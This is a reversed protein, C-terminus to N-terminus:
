KTKNQQQSCLFEPPRLRGSPGLAFVLDLGESWAAMQEFVQGLSDLMFAYAWFFSSSIAEDVVGVQVSHDDSKDGEGRQQMEADGRLFAEKSWGFVLLDKIKLLEGIAFWISGWRAEYVHARFSKIEAKRASQPAISFCTEILRDCSWRRSLLRCTQRLQNLFTPFFLLCDALDKTTNHLVHLMGAIYVSRRMNVLYPDAHAGRHHPAQADPPPANDGPGTSASAGGPVAPGEVPGMSDEFRFAPQSALTDRDPRAAADEFVFAAPSQSALGEFGSGSPADDFEMKVNVSQGPAPPDGGNSDDAHRREADADADADVVWQGFLKRLSQRFLWFGSEVGLDGTWSMTSSLMDAVGRWSSCSLRVAHAVAHVKRRLSQRGSGVATPVGQSLHLLDSLRQAIIRREGEPVGPRCLRNADRMAPVLDAKAVTRSGHMVFDFPGQPSSDVTCFRVCGRQLFNDYLQQEYMCYAMHVTLRHRRLTTASPLMRPAEMQQLIHGRLSPDHVAAFVVFRLAEAMQGMARLFGAFVVCSILCELAFARTRRTTQLMLIDRRRQIWCLHQRVEESPVRAYSRRLVNALQDLSDPSLGDISDTSRLLAQEAHFHELAEQHAQRSVIEDIERLGMGGALHGGPMPFVLGTWDGGCCLLAHAAPLSACKRFKDQVDVLTDFVIDHSACWGQVVQMVSRGDGFPSDSACLTDFSPSSMQFFMSMALNQVLSVQVRHGQLDDSHDNAGAAARRVHIFM